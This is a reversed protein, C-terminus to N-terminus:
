SNKEETIKSISLIGGACVLLTGIITGLDLQEKFIIWGLLAAFVVSSYQFAGIEHPKAYTYAKILLFQFCVLCGGTALMILAQEYNIPQLKGLVLVTSLISGILLFYIMQTIPSDTEDLKKVALFEIATVFGAALGLINGPNTLITADPKVIIVMGAFGLGIAIWLQRNIRTKLFILALIPIFIPTTNLLVNANVLSTLQAAAIFLLFGAIGTGGRVLHTRIVETKLDKFRRVAVIPILIVLASVFTVWTFMEVSLQAELFKGFVSQITNALFALVLFISGLLLSEKVKEPM